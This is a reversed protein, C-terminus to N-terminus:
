RIQYLHHVKLHLDVKSIITPQCIRCDVRLTGKWVVRFWIIVLSYQLKRTSYRVCHFMWDLDPATCVINLWQRSVVKTDMVHSAM